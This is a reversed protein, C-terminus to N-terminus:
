LSDSEKMREKGAESKQRVLDERKEAYHMNVTTTVRDREIRKRGGKAEGISDAEREREYVVRSRM